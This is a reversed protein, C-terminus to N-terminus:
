DDEGPWDRTVDFFSAPTRISDAFVIGSEDVWRRQWPLDDALEIPSRRVLPNTWLTPCIKSFNFYSLRVGALVAAIEGEGDVPSWLGDAARIPRAGEIVMRSPDYAYEVGDTGFLASEVQHEAGFDRALLVAIIVPADLGRCASAKRAIADRLPEENEVIVMDGAGWTVVARVRGPERSDGFPFAEIGLAWDGEAFVKYPYRGFGNPNPTPSERRTSAFDLTGIWKTIRARFRACPASNAGVRLMEVGLRWPGTQAGDLGDYLANERRSRSYAGPDEFRSTAEVHFRGGPGDITFDPTASSVVVDYGARVFTEHLYLEWWASQQESERSSFLRGRLHARLEGPYRAFWSELVDRLAGMVRRASRDAYTMTSEVHFAADIAIRTKDEFLRM